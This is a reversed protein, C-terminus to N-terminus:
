NWITTPYGIYYKYAENFTSKDRYTTGKWEIQILSPCYGFAELGIETVSDPIRVDLLGTSAFAYGGIYTVNEPIIIAFLSECAAFAENEIRTVSDPINIKELSKCNSFARYEISTVGDPINVEKLSSLYFANKGISTVSDPIQVKLLNECNAFASEGIATVKYNVGEYEFTEPIVVDGERTIGAMAYNDATLTFETYEVVDNGKEENLAINFNFNGNWSGATLGQADIVGHGDVTAELMPDFIEDFVWKTKDQSISATVDAKGSQTMAFSEDPVVSVYETGAIDGRVGVTYAGTKTEGDLVIHKPISVIFESGLEAYVTTNSTKNEAVNQSEVAGVSDKYTTAYAPMLSTTATAGVLTYALLKKVRM